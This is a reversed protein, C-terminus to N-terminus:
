HSYKRRKPGGSRGMYIGPTPTHARQTISFDVRIKRGDMELGNCKDKALQADETNRFYVFAFGRSRGTQADFVVQVDEIPGYESFLDRLDREQTYLSLGFIGLCKSAPPNDRNGNHRRRHSMPSHSDDRKYSSSQRYNFDHSSGYRSFKGYGGSGYGDSDRHKRRYSHRSSRSRSRSRSSSRSASRSRSRRRDRSSLRPSPSRSM